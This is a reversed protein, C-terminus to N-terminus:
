KGDKPTMLERFFALHGEIADAARSVTQRCGEVASKDGRGEHGAALAVSVALDTVLAHLEDANRNAVELQDAIAM